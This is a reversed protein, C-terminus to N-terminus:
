QPDFCTRETSRAIQDEGTSGGWTRKPTAKGEGLQEKQGEQLFWVKWKGIGFQLVQEGDGGGVWEEFRFWLVGRDVLLSSLLLFFFLLSDLLSFSADGVRM